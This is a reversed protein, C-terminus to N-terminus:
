ESYENETFNLIAVKYNGISKYFIRRAAELGNGAGICDIGNEECANMTSELGENGFDMIHNNALTLLNFGAFSLAHAVHPSAKLSPGIKNINQGSETLPCELNTLALSSNKLVPLFDNFITEYNGETILEEIRNIPCFDGTVIVRNRSNM